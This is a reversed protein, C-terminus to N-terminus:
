VVGIPLGSEGGQVFFEIRVLPGFSNLQTNRTKSHNPTTYTCQAALVWVGDHM